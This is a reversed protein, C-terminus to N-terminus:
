PAFGEKKLFEKLKQRTRSLIMLINSEKLHYRGAIEKTTEVFFYRRLFVDRDRVSCGELIQHILRNLEQGEVAKEVSEESPLCESLEDLVLEMTGGGRKEASQAKYRNLALNRTIKALFPRLRSPRQPLIANLWVDSICEEADERNDLISQAIKTCYAAMNTRRKM